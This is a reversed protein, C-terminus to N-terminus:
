SKSECIRFAAYRGERGEFLFRSEKALNDLTIRAQQKSSYQEYDLLIAAFNATCLKPIMEEASLQAVQKIWQDTESGSIAGFSWRLTNTHLFPIFSENVMWRNEFNFKGGEPYQEYPLQFVMSNKPLQAELDRFFTAHSSYTQKLQKYRPVALYGTQDAVGLVLILSLLLTPNIVKRFLSQRLSQLHALYSQIILGVAFLSLFSIYPAIRYLARVEPTVTLAFLTGYGAVSAFLVASLNLHALTKFLRNQQIPFREIAIAAVLSTFGVAGVVGLAVSANVHSHPYPGYKRAFSTFLPLYHERIPLYLQTIKLGWFESDQWNRIFASASSPYQWRHWIVPLVL